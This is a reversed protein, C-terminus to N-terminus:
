RVREPPSQGRVAHVDFGAMTLRDWFRRWWHGALLTVSRSLPTVRHSLFPWLTVCRSLMRWCRSLLRGCFLGISRSAQKDTM